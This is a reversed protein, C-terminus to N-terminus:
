LSFKSLYGAYSQRFDENGKAKIAKLRAHTDFTGHATELLAVGVNSCHDSIRECDTLFDTLIFGLEITCNGSQLRVIHRGRITDILTDIVQELPEIETAAVLDKEAFATVTNHLIEQVAAILVHLEANAEKSFAINKNKIETATHMLNTAHDGIREFDSITHLLMAITRADTESLDCRSLSVLYTSLKDEYMDLTKELRSVAAAIEDDYNDFLSFAMKVTEGAGQAMEATTDYSKDAALAPMTFLREDLAVEPIANEEEAGVLKNCMKEILGICPFLIVTNVINYISHMVAISVPDAALNAFAPRVLYYVVVWAIMWMAMGICKILLHSIAVKKAGKNTGPLAMIASICTGINQGMIIPIANGYTVAGTLSLAQLIGVSASSSQIVATFLTGLLVGLFPNEFAILINRFTESEALPDMAGSMVEMGYMLVAFGLCITGINQRKEKKSFMLLFAGVLAIIPSFNAPKLLQVFLNSSSIGSLSLIWSTVTTGINSGMVVSITQPFAMLGANVLGVLMVTTASSSQIVATVVTGVALGKVRNDTIKQLISQMKGGATKELGASLVHMGYLFFALGGCFAIFDFITM